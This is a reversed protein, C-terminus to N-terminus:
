RAIRYEFSISTLFTAALVDTSAQQTLRITGPISIDIIGAFIMPLGGMDTHNYVSTSGVLAWNGFADAKLTQIIKNSRSGNYGSRGGLLRGVFTAEVQVTASSLGTVIDHSISNSSNANISVGGDATGMRSSYLVLHAGNTNVTVHGNNLVSLYKQESVVLHLDPYNAAAQNSELVIGGMKNYEPYPNDSEGSLKMIMGLRRTAVSGTIAPHRLVICEAYGGGSLGSVIDLKPTANPFLLSSGSINSPGAAGQNPGIYLQGDERLEFTHTNWSGIGNIAITNGSLDRPIVSFVLSSKTWNGLDPGVGRIQSYIDAVRQNVNGTSRGWFSIISNKSGSSANSTNMVGFLPLDGSSASSVLSVPGYPGLLDNQVVSTDGVMVRGNKIHFVSSNFASSAERTRITLSGSNNFIIQSSGLSPNFFADGSLPYWNYGIRDETSTKHFVLPSGVTSSLQLVGKPDNTNIGVLGNNIPGISYVNSNGYVVGTATFGTVRPVYNLSGTASIGSSDIDWNNTGSNWIYSQRNDLQFVRLGDYRFSIANRVAADAATIRYDIPATFNVNFGDYITYAM